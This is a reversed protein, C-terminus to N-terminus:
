FLESICPGSFYNKSAIQSVALVHLFFKNKFNASTHNLSLNFFLFYLFRLINGDSIM